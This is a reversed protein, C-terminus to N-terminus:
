QLESPDTVDPPHSIQQIMGGDGAGVIGTGVGPGVTVKEGVSVRKSAHSKSVEVTIAGVGEGDIVGNGVTSHRSVSPSAESEYPSLQAAHYM